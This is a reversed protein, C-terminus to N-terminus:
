VKMFVVMRIVPVLRPIPFASANCKKDCPAVTIPLLLFVCDSNASRKKPEIRNM